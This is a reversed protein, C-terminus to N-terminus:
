WKHVCRDWELVQWKVALILVTDGVHIWLETWNPRETMNLEKRGWPSCCALSGQGDSVGPAQEFEHGNLQHHWGVVEDEITGKEEQRWDKGADTDKGIFWNKVDPSWFVPTEAKVDTSGIFIWSQNEKPDLPKIEKCDLLSKLTRELVVIWFFSKLVWGEKGPIDTIEKRQKRRSEMSNAM